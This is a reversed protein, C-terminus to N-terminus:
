HNRHVYNEVGYDALLHSFILKWLPRAPINIFNQLPVKKDVVASSSFGAGNEKGQLARHGIGM